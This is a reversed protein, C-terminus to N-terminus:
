ELGHLHRHRKLLRLRCACISRESRLKALDEQLGETATKYPELRHTRRHRDYWRAWSDVIRDEEATWRRPTPGSAGYIERHGEVLRAMCASPRRNFGAGRLERRLGEAFESLPGERRQHHGKHYLKVWKSFIREEPSTWYQMHPGGLNLRRALIRIRQEADSTRHGALHAPRVESGKGKYLSRLEKMAAAAADTWRQYRGKATARAYRELVDLEPRTWPAKYRPLKASAVIRTLENYVAEESRAPRQRSGTAGKTACADIEALERTCAAAIDRTYKYKGALLRRVYRELVRREAPEWARQLYPLGMSRAFELLKAYYGYYTRRLVGRRQNAADRQEIERQCLTAAQRASPYRGAVFSQAYRRLVQEDERSWRAKAYSLQKRRAERRIHAALTGLAAVTRGRHQRALEKRCAAAATVADAYDGQALANTYRDITARSEGFTVLRAGDIRM